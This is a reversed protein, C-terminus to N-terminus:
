GQDGRIAGDASPAVIGQAVIREAARIVFRISGNQLTERELSLPEGPQVASPFKASEIRWRQAPGDLEHLLADLLLVGPLVPHTPFHGAYAPHDAAIKLDTRTPSGTLGAM